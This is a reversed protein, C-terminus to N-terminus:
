SSEALATVQQRIELGPPDQLSHLLLTTRTSCPRRTTCCGGKGYAQAATRQCVGEPALLLPQSPRLMHSIEEYDTSAEKHKDFAWPQDQKSRALGVLPLCKAAKVQVKDAPRM